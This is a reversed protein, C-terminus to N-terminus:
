DFPLLACTESAMDLSGLLGANNILVDVGDPCAAAVEGAAAQTAHM